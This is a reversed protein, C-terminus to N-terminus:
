YLGRLKNRVENKYKESVDIIIKIGGKRPMLMTLQSNIRSFSEVMKVNVIYSNHCRLFHGTQNYTNMFETLSMSMLTIFKYDNTKIDYLEIHLHKENPVKSVYCIENIDISDIKSHSYLSLRLSAIAQHRSDAIYLREEIEEFLIDKTLYIINEYKNHVMAQYALDKKDTQVIIPTHFSQKRILSILGEGHRDPLNLDIIAIDCLGHNIILEAEKFKKATLIQTNFGFQYSILAILKNLIHNDDEVILISLIKKVNFM